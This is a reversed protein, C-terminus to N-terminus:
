LLGEAQYYYHDDYSYIHSVSYSICANLESYSRQTRDYMCFVKVIEWRECVYGTHIVAVATLREKLADEEARDHNRIRKM